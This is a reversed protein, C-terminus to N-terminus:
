LYADSLNGLFVVDEKLVGRRDVIDAMIKKIKKLEDPALDDTLLLARALDLCRYCMDIGNYRECVVGKAKKSVVKKSKKVPKKTKKAKKVKKIKRAM